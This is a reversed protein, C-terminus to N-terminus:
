AFREKITTLRGYLSWQCMRLSSRGRMGQRSNVKM